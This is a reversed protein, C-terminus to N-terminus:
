YKTTFNGTAGGDPKATVAQPTDLALADFHVLKASHAFLSVWSLGFEYLTPTSFKERVHNITHSYCGTDLVSPHLISITRMAVNNTSARDHMAALLRESTVGYETSVTSFIEWAIEEGSMRKTLMQLRVLRQQIQLTDPKVFRFLVALAEGQRTTGDFVISM